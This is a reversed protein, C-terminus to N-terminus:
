TSIRRKIAFFNLSVTLITIEKNIYIDKTAINIEGINIRPLELGKITIELSLRSIDNQNHIM